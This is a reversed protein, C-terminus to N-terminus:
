KGFSPIVPDPMASQIFVAPANSQPIATTVFSQDTEPSKAIKMAPRVTGKAWNVPNGEMDINGKNGVYVQSEAGSGVTGTWWWCTGFESVYSGEAIAQPSPQCQLNNGYPFYRNLDPVELLFIPCQSACKCNPDTCRREAAELIRTREAETFASYLFNNNLWNNIPSDKWATAVRTPYYAMCKLGLRSVVLYYSDTEELVIWDIAEPGNKPDNDQEYRGFHILSMKAAPYYGTGDAFAAPICSVGLLVALMICILRKKM